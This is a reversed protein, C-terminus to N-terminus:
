SGKKSKWQTAAMLTHPKSTTSRSYELRHQRLHIRTMKKQTASSATPPHQQLDNCRGHMAYNTTQQRPTARASKSNVMQRPRRRFSFRRQHVLAVHPAPPQQHQQPQKLHGLYPELRYRPPMTDGERLFFSMSSFTLEMYPHPSNLLQLRRRCQLPLLRTYQVCSM